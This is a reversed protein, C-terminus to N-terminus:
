PPTEKGLLTELMDAVLATVARVDMRMDRRLLRWVYVDTTVVLQTLRRERDPEALARLRHAFTATVWARHYSRGLNLLTTLDPHRQEQALLRVVVDGAVEYDQVLAHAVARPSAGPPVSRRTEIEDKMTEAVARLLDEKGGFLRILTQRTTGAARAVDDLTIDDLWKAILADSFATVIRRRTELTAAARAIQRYPRAEAPM